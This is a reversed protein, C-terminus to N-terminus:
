TAREADFTLYDEVVEFWSEDGQRSILGLSQKIDECM